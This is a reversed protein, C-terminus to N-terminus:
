LVTPGTPYRRWPELQHGCVPTYDTLRDRLEAVTPILTLGHDRIWTDDYITDLYRDGGDPAVAVVNHHPGLRQAVALAIFVAAGSSGGLLLGEKSALMRCASFAETDGCWYAEDIVAPDFNGPTFGSGLGVLLHQGLPGGIATSGRGDVAVMRCDPRTQKIRRGIGTIQGCSSTTCVIAAVDGDLDGLIESATTASHAAPNDPNDWQNPMYAGEVTHAVAEAAQIRPIQYKGHEDPKEVLTAEAAYAAITRVSLAPTRPDVMIKVPVDLAAGIMALAIGLNGSTAEVITGDETLVGSRLAERVMALAPRAKVSGGPNLCELKVWVTADTPETLRNLRVLPTNGIADLISDYRM